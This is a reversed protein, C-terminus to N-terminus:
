MKEPVQIGLLWLGREMVKVFSNTIAVRYPSEPSKTDVIMNSAYYSNYESALDTLYGAIRHPAYEARARSIIDPFRVLKRELNMPGTDTTDGVNWEGIGEKKAKALVARARVCSYQLYPGSDGDFSISTKPDFIIDGGVAQRLISYKIASVAVKNSIDDRTKQDFGRDTIKENVLKETNSILDDASIINGKRSSMKGDSFRLMGHGIQVTKKAIDPYVINMASLLTKFYDNQENATIIISQNLRPYLKFKLHNLGLEKAEYTPLGQSNLFVRTNVGRGEGRFITAGESEEFVGKKLFEKVIAVGDEAVESEFFFRDFATGLRAYMQDFYELSWARGKQYIDNIKEDSKEFVKKNIEVVEKEAKEKEIASYGEIEGAKVYM